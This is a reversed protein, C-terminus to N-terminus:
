HLLDSSTYQPIYKLVLLILLSSLGTLFLNGHDAVVTNEVVTKVSCLLVLSATDSMCGHIEEGYM